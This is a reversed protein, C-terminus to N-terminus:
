QKFSQEMEISLKKTDQFEEGASLQFIVIKSNLEM